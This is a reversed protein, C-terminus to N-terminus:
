CASVISDQLYAACERIEFTLLCYFRLVYALGNLIPREVSVEPRSPETMSGPGKGKINGKRIARHKSIPSPKAPRSDKNPSRSSAPCILIWRTFIPSCYLGSYSRSLVSEKLTSAPESVFKAM